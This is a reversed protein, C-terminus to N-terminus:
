WFKWWPKKKAAAPAQQKQKAPGPKAPASKQAPKAKADKKPAAKAPADPKLPVTFQEPLYGVVAASGNLEPFQVKSFDKGMETDVHALLNRWQKVDDSDLTSILQRLSRESGPSAFMDLDSLVLQVYPLPSARVAKELGGLQEQLHQPLVKALKQKRKQLMDIAADKKRVITPCRTITEPDYSHSEPPEEVLQVDRPEFMALWGIPIWDAAHAIENV